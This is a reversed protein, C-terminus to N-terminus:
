RSSKPKGLEFETSVDVMYAGELINRGLLVPYNFQRRSILTFEADVPAQEGLTLSLRVVYRKEDPGHKEIRAIRYVPKELKITAESDRDKVTFRVWEEGDREFRRISRADISSTTAGTDVRAVLPFGVEAFHAVELAGVVVSPRNREFTNVSESISSSTKCGSLVLLAALLVLPYSQTKYNM